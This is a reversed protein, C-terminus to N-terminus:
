DNLCDYYEGSVKQNIKSKCIKITNFISTLSIKTAEEIERMSMGSDRYLRFLKADYWHWSDIEKEIKEHLKDIAKNAKDYDEPVLISENLEVKMIRSKQKCYDVYINRLVFWIFGKNVEGNKVIKEEDTYKYIRLYMEQVIDEAYTHEGFSQVVDVFFNHNKAVIGLWNNSM